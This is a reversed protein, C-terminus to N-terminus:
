GAPPAKIGILDRDHVGADVFGGIVLTVGGRDRNHAAAGEVIEARRRMAQRGVGSGLRTRNAYVALRKTSARALTLLGAAHTRRHADELAATRVEEVPRALSVGKRRGTREAQGNDARCQSM